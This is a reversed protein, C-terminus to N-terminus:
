VYFFYFFFLIVYGFNCWRDDYNVGVQVFFVNIDKIICFLCMDISNFNIFYGGVIEM